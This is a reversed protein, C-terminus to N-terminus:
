FRLQFAVDRLTRRSQSRPTPPSVRRSSFVRDYPSRRLRSRVEPAIWLAAPAGIDPADFTVEDVDGREFRPSSYLAVDRSSDSSLPTLEPYRDVRQM